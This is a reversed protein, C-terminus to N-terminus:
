LRIRRVAATRVRIGPPTPPTADRSAGRDRNVAIRTAPGCKATGDPAASGVLGWAPAGRWWALPAIYGVRIVWLKLRRVVGIPRTAQEFAFGAVSLERHGASGRERVPLQWKPRQQRSEAQEDIGGLADATKVQAATKPQM